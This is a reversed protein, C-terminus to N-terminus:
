APHRQLTMSRAHTASPRIAWQSPVFRSEALARVIGERGSPARNFADVEYQFPYVLTQGVLRVHFFRQSPGQGATNSPLFV